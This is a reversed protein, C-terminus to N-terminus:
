GGLGSRLCSDRHNLRRPPWRPGASVVRDGPRSSPRPRLLDLALHRPQRGGPAPQGRALAWLFIATQMEAFTRGALTMSHGLVAAPAPSGSAAPGDAARSALRLECAPEPSPAELGLLAVDIAADALAAARRLVNRLERANGPWDHACLRALAEASLTHPGLECAAEALFHEALLAIDGPRERLPPLRLEYGALRHCLRDNAPLPPNDVLASLIARQPPPRPV